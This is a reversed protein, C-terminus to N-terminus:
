AWAMGCPHRAEVLWDFVMETSSGQEMHALFGQNHPEM